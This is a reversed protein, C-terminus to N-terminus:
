RSALHTEEEPTPWPAFHIRRNQSWCNEDSQMCIPYLKGWGTAFPIRDPSVGMEVLADEVAMAREGSLVLNYIIDGREDANGELTIMVDPHGKLWEADAELIAREEPRLDSNDFDFHIDKVAQSFEQQQDVPVPPAAVLKADFAPNANPDLERPDLQILQALATGCWLVATAILIKNRM